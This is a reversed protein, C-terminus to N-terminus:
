GRSSVLLKSIIDMFSGNRVECEWITIVNWGLEELQKVTRGDREVNEIFKKNWKDINSKPSYAIKCNEHRHWFCGNVFIVTKRGTLTIDPNGPLDKRHLRFRFGNKFLWSRVKREPSTNKSRIRSMMLSREEKTLSDTM